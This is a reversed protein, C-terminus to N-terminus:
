RSVQLRTKSDLSAPLVIYDDRRRRSGRRSPRWFKREKAAQVGDLCVLYWQTRVTLVDTRTYM